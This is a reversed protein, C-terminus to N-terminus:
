VHAGSNPKLNSSASVSRRPTPLRNSYNNIGHVSLSNGASTFHGIHTSPVSGPDETPSSVIRVWQAMAGAGGWSFRVVDWSYLYTVYTWLGFMEQYYTVSLNNGLLETAYMYNKGNM